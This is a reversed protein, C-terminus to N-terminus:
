TWGMLKGPNRIVWIREILGHAIAVSAVALTHGAEDRAVLGAQGNVTTLQFSLGAQRQYLGLLHRAIKEAGRIPTITASVLGGGDPIATADPDLIEILAALNGTDLAAKFASV